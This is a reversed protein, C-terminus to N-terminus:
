EIKGNLLRDIFRVSAVCRREVMSYVVIENNYMKMNYRICFANTVPAYDYSLCPFKQVCSAFRLFNKQKREVKNLDSATHFNQGICSFCVWSNSTCSCLIINQYIHLSLNFENAQKIVFVLSKYALCCIYEIHQKFELSYSFQYNLEM